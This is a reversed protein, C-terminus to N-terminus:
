WVGKGSVALAPAAGPAFALLAAAPNVAPNFIQLTPSKASLAATPNKVALAAVPNFPALQAVPNGFVQM